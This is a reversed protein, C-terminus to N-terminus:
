SLYEKLQYKAVVQNTSSYTGDKEKQCVVYRNSRNPYYVKTDDHWYYCTIEMQHEGFIFTCVKSHIEDIPIYERKRQESKQNGKKNQSEEDIDGDFPSTGLEHDGYMDHMEGMAIAGKQKGKVPKWTSKLTM